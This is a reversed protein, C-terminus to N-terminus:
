KTQIEALAASLEKIKNIIGATTPPFYPGSTGEKPAYLYIDTENKLLAIYLEVALEKDSKGM